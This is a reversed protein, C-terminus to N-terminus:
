ELFQENGSCCWNEDKFKLHLAWSFTVSIKFIYKINKNSTLNSHDQNWNYKTSM